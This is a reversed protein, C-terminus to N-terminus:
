GCHYTCGVFAARYVCNAEDTQAGDADLGSWESPTKEETKSLPLVKKCV